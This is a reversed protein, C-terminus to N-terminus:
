LSIKGLDGRNWFLPRQLATKAIYVRWEFFQQSELKV